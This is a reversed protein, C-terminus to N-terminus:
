WGATRSCRQVAAYLTTRGNIRSFPRKLPLGFLKSESRALESADTAVHCPLSGAWIEILHSFIGINRDNSSKESQYSIESICILQSVFRSGRNCQKAAKSTWTKHLKVSTYRKKKAITPIDVESGLSVSICIMKLIWSCHPLIPAERQKM